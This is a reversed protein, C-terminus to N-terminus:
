GAQSVWCLGVVWLPASVLAGELRLIIVFGVNIISAM